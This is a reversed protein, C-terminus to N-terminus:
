SSATVAPGTVVALEIKAAASGASRAAVAVATSRLLPKAVASALPKVLASPKALAGASSKALASAATQEAGPEAPSASAAGVAVWIRATVTSLPAVAPEASTSVSPDAPRDPWSPTTAPADAALAPKLALTLSAGGGGTQEAAPEADPEVPLAGSSNPISASDSSSPAVSPATRSTDTATCVATCAAAGLATRAAAASMSFSDSSSPASGAGNREAAPEADPEAPSAGGSRSTSCSDSSSPAMIPAARSTGSATRILQLAPRAAVDAATRRLSPEVLASAAKAAISSPTTTPTAAAAAPKSALVVSLPAAGVSNQAAGPEALASAAGVAVWITATVTCAALIAELPATPAEAGRGVDLWKLKDLEVDRWNNLVAGFFTCAEDAAHEAPREARRWALRVARHRADREEDPLDDALLALWADLWLGNSHDRNWAKCQLVRQAKAATYAALADAEARQLAKAEAEARQPAQREGARLRRAAARATIVQVSEGDDPHLPEDGDESNPESDCLDGPSQTDFFTNDHATRSQGTAGLQTHLESATHIIGAKLATIASANPAGSLAAHRSAPPGSARASGTSRTQALVHLPTRDPDPGTVAQSSILGSTGVTPVLALAHAMGCASTQSGDRMRIDVHRSDSVPPSPGVLSRGVCLAGVCLTGSVLPLSGCLSLPRSWCLLCPAVWVLVLPAVWM